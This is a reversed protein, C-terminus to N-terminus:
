LLCMTKAGPSLTGQLQFTPAWSTKSRATQRKESAKASQSQPSYCTPCSATVDEAQKQKEQVQHHSNFVKFAIEVLQSMPMGLVGELRQLKKRIDPAGQHIFTM